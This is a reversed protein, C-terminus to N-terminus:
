RVSIPSRIWRSGDGRACPHLDSSGTMSGHQEALISWFTFNLKLTNPCFDAPETALAVVGEAADVGRGALPTWPPTGGFFFNSLRGRHVRESITAAASITAITIAPPM